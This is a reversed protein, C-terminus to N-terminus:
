KCSVDDWHDFEYRKKRLGPELEKMLAGEEEESIFETRVEVQGRLRQVL